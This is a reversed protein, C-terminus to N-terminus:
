NFLGKFKDKLKEKLKEEEEKKKKELEAKKAQKAKEIKLQADKKAQEAKQKAERKAQEVKRKAEAAAESTLAKGVQKSWAKKDMIIEPQSFAGKVVVALPVDLMKEMTTKTRQPQVDVVTRYNLSEKPLNIKGAGTVKFRPADLLLDNNKVVGKQITATARLTKIATTDKPTYAGRWEDKVPVKKEELYVALAKRVFYEADVGSLIANDANFSVDGHSNAILQNVSKGTTNVTTVLNSAGNISVETEGLLDQLVPNVISDAKVGKANLHVNYLPVDPRVDLSLTSFVSGGLLKASIKPIKILGREAKTEIVLQQITQDFGQINQATFVGAINLSRLMDVPLDIAVDEAGKPKNVDTAPASTNGSIPTTEESPPPLYADVNIKDLLLDYKIKPQEFDNVALSGNFNSEDMKIALQELALSQTTAELDFGLAVSQMSQKGQMDPLDVDLQALLKNLNFESVDVRGKILPADTLQNIDLKTKLEVDFADVKLQKIRLKQAKLDVNVDTSVQANVIGGPIAKGKADVNINLSPITFVQQELKAQLESKLSLKLEDIDFENLNAIVDLALEDLNLRQDDMDYTVNVDSKLQVKTAPKTTELKASINLPISEGLQIAGTVVNLEQLSVKQDLQMDDWLAKANTIELGNVKFFPIATAETAAKDEVPNVSEESTANAAANSEVSTSKQKELIDDWNTRGQKDKQLVLDLGHVRLTDVRVDQKLLPLLEVRVDITEVKVMPSEAFGKANSLALDQLEIGIWPFVSPKIDGLIFDRGTQQKVQETIQPKYDNADFTVVFFIASAVVVVILAVLVYLSIKIFKM